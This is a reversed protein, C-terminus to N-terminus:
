VFVYLSFFSRSFEGPRTPRGNVSHYDLMELWKMVRDFSCSASSNLEMWESYVVTGMPVTEPHVLRALTAHERHVFFASIGVLLLAAGAASRLVLKRFARRTMFSPNERRLFSPKVPREAWSSYHPNGCSLM